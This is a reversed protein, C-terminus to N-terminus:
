FAVRLELTFFATPDAEYESIKTGDEEDLRYRQWVYAGAKGALSIKPTFNYQAGLGVPVQRHRGIGDPVPGDDDLRFDRAEYGGELFVSLQDTAKYNLRLSRGNQSSLSWDPAFNWLFAIAPLVLFDEELRSRAYVGLGLTFQDNFSYRIGGLGGYTVSDGFDAGYESAASVDGGVYWALRDTHQTLFTLRIGREWTDDWPATAGFGSPESFDYFSWENDFSVSITSRDAIPVGVDVAARVRSVQVDGTTSKLDSKLGIEGEASLKIELERAEPKASPAQERQTVPQAYYFSAPSYTLGPTQVQAVAPSALLALLPAATQRM